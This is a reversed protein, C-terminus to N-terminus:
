RRPGERKSRVAACTRSWARLVEAERLGRRALSTRVIQERTGRKVQREAAVLAEEQRSRAVGCRSRM